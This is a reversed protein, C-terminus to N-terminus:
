LFKLISRSAGSVLIKFDPLSKELLKFMFKCGFLLLDSWMFVYWQHDDLSDEDLISLNCKFRALRIALTCM